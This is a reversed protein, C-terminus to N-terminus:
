QRPTFRGQRARRLAPRGAPPPLAQVPMDRSIKPLMFVKPTIPSDDNQAKKLLVHSWHSSNNPIGGIGTM